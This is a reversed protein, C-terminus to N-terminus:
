AGPIRIQYDFLGQPDELTCRPWASEKFVELTQNAVPGLIASGGMPNKKTYKAEMRALNWLLM